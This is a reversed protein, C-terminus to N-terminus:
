RKVVRPAASAIGLLDGLLETEELSLFNAGNRTAEAPRSILLLYLPPRESPASLDAAVETQLWISGSPAQAAQLPDQGMHTPRPIPNQAGIQDPKLDGIFM